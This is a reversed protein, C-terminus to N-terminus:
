TIDSNLQTTEYNTINIINDSKMDNPIIDNM